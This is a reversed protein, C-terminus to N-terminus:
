AKSGASDRDGTRASSRGGPGSRVNTRALEANKRLPEVVIQARVPVAPTMGGFQLVSQSQTRESRTGGSLQRRPQQRVGDLVLPKTMKGPQGHLFAPLTPDDQRPWRREFAKEDLDAM